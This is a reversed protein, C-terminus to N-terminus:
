NPVLSPRPRDFFDKLLMSALFGGITSVLVLVMAGRMRRLWFFGAVCLTLLTLFTSGGLATIDRGVEAMWPPGIARAPEDARRLSQVAWTDFRMTDGEAVEDALRIFGWVSLVAALMAALVAPEHRGIWELPWRLFGLPYGGRKGGPPESNAQSSSKAPVTM